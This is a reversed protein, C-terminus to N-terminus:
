ILIMFFCKQRYKEKRLGIIFGSIRKGTAGVYERDMKRCEQYFVKKYTKSQITTDEASISHKYYNDYWEVTFWECTGDMIFPKYADVSSSAFNTDSQAYLYTNGIFFLLYLLFFKKM